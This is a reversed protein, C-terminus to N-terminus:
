DPISAKVLTVASRVAASAGRVAAAAGFIPTSAPDTAMPRGHLAERARLVDMAESIANAIMELGALQANLADDTYARIADRKAEYEADVAATSTIAM